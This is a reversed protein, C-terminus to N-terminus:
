DPMWLKSSGSQAPGDSDPTWLGSEQKPPQAPASAGGANLGVNSVGSAAPAGPGSGVGYGMPAASGDPRVLGLNVLMLQLQQMIEPERSHNQKIYQVTALFGDLDQLSVQMMAQRLNFVGDSLGFEKAEASAKKIMEMAEDARGESTMADIQAEYAMRRAEACDKSAPESLIRDAFKAVTQDEAFISAVHLLQGAIRVPVKSFDLRSWRWIPLSQFFMLSDSESASEPPTITEQAPVGTKARLQAAVHGSLKPDIQFVVSQVLGALVLTSDPKGAYQEPTEGGLEDSPHALWAPVFVKDYYEKHIDMFNKPYPSGAAVKFAFNPELMAVTWPTKTVVAPEEGANYLGGIAEDLVAYARDKNLGVLQLEMRAERDTQKGFLLFTGLLVPINELSPTASADPSPKDLIRFMHTPAPHDADGFQRPDFPVSALRPNSVLKEVAKDYDTIGHVALLVPVDDTRPKRASFVVTEADVADDWAVKATQSYRKMDAYGGEMDNLWLKVLALAKILEPWQGACSQMEELAAKAKKWHGTGLMVVIEAYRDQFPFDSPAASSFSLEKQVLPIDRRSYVQSILMAVERSDPVFAQLMKALAIACFVNGDDLMASAVLIMPAIMDQELKGPETTEIGDVLLSLAKGADGGTAEAISCESIAKINTPEEAYFKRALEMFEDIRGGLRLCVCKAAKLCACDPHTKELGEIRMVATNMQGEQMLNNLDQLDKLMDPCCFRIKKGRGGPCMSYADIAM